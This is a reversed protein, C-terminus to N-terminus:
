PAPFDWEIEVNYFRDAAPTVSGSAELRVHYSYTTNIAFGDGTFLDGSDMEIDGPANDANSLSVAGEPPASDTGNLSRIVTAGITDSGSTNKQARVRIRHVVAGAPLRVPAWIYNTSEALVWVNHAPTHTAAPQFWDTPPVAIRQDNTFYLDELTETFTVAGTSSIRVINLAAASLAAPWTVTYSSALAAAVAHEVYVSETTDFEYIRVPGSALRAWKKTPSEQDKFTYVQNADDNAVEAGVTAYVGGIGGVLSPNISAGKTLKVNTGGNTRWYLENDASSVFLSKSGTSPAAIATFSAKGLASIFYGGWAVDANINLAASAILVGKGSTHDHADVLGLAANIKDDWQGSDGGLTPTILSMNPLTAM